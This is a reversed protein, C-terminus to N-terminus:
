AGTPPQDDLIAAFADVPVPGRNGSTDTAVASIKLQSGPAGNVQFDMAFPATRDAFAFTDNIFFDVVSVDTTSVTAAAHGVTGQILSGTGSIVLSTVAPPTRDTTHFGFNLGSAQRHDTLDTAAQVAVTYSADEVLPLNPTFVIVTNSFLYDTRGAVAGQPGSLTIPAGTFKSPDIIENFKVRVVTDVSVGTATLTPTTELISPPTVDVTTFAAIYDATMARGARDKVGSVRLTYRTQDTLQSGPLLRFRVETDDTLTDILGAVLGAPGLLTVSTANVSGANLSESFRVHIETTRSVNVDGNAPTSEVVAPPAEDLTVDGLALPGTLVVAGSKRAIGGGVPDQLFLSYSGAGIAEYSFQGDAGTEAFLHGGNLTLDAVVGGAPNGNALLVRGTMTVAPALIVELGSKTTGPILVDGISGQQGNLSSAVVTFTQAPVNSFRFKGLADTSQQCAGSCGSGPQGYLRVSANAAPLLTNNQREYVTGEIVSLGLLTATVDAIDNEFLLSGGATGVSPNGTVQASARVTFRGLPIDGVSFRGDAGGLAARCGDSACVEVQANPAPAGGPLVVTGTVTGAVRRVVNVVVPVDVLQGGRTVQGNVSGQGVIGRKYAQLLFNGVPAGPFSFSGDVGTQAIQPPLGRGSFTSEYLQVTWGKLPTLAGAEVVTGRISGLAELTLSLSTPQTGGLVVVSATGRGATVPDFGEATISGVPILPVEYHGQADTVAYALPGSNNSLIVEANPVPVLLTTSDERLVQGTVSGTADFLFVDVTVHGGDVVVRGSKRGAFGNQDMATVVFQGESLADGGGFVITGDPAAVGQRHDKPYDLGQLEITAGGVPTIGNSRIVRVTVNARGLLRIPADVEDGARVSGKIEAIKGNGTSNDVATITFPGANVLPFSYTGDAANTVAFAEQIGQPISTCESDGTQADEHCFVVVANSKFKLTVQRGTVPTFGDPELVTGTIRSTPQLRLDITVTQGPGPMVGEAAVPEPSFQGAARVTFPGTFVQDKFEYEGNTINNDVVKFNQVYEFKVGVKGGAVVLRDGSISVKAALPTDGSCPPSNCNEARLVRGKVTGFSGRFTIDAVLVQREYRIAIPFVNGDKLDSRFASIRYTAIGLKDIRYFGQANTTAEGKICISPQLFEDYCDQFVWVKIGPQAVGDHDRVVGAVSGVPDLVITANVSEGNQVIDVQTEGQSQLTNSVAVLRTRGVPIDTLTFSGDAAANVLSGGGGIVADPVPQHSADLVVGHVIGFGGGLLITVNETENEALTVRVNGEQLTVQDFTNVRIEGAPLDPLEFLGQDNSNAVALACESPESTGGPPPPCPVGVQSRTKYYAIVPIGAVATAGDARVVRGTVTAKKIPATTAADLLVLDREVTAGAFPINESVFISAPRATNVAEILLNGVPVGAFSYRGDAGTTSGYQSQDTLSTARLVTGALPTRGDEALTRGTVSGRGLFVVNVNLRQSNRALGFRITRLDDRESDLAVLKINMGPARLVYDFQYRGDADTTQEAIGVLEGSDGCNFEYFMRVTSFANPTGDAQLVQGYVLGADTGVVTEIPLTQTPITNGNLDQAGDVTLTRPEFPGIPSRLAVYVIRGGPQLAVGVARNNEPKFTTIEGPPAKDQVSQPTVEESFLVAIVRGAPYQRQPDLPCGVMDVNAVQRVGLISPAPDNVLGFTATETTGGTPERRLAYLSDPATGGNTLAVGSALSLGTLSAFRLTNDTGPLVVSLNYTALPSSGERPTLVLTYTDPTPVSIVLLRAMLQDGSNFDLVDGFPIDKVVKMGDVTGLRHGSGDVLSANFALPGNNGTILVSVHPTKSTMQEALSRHFATAGALVGPTLIKAVASALQDGRVSKRRVLDFGKVDRQLLALLGTTDNQPVKKALQSYETGLFDFLLSAAARAMPEGFSVRLGAEATQVGRDIVVQKSFRSLDKPLAAPPATAVAWARAMLDVAAQRLEADLFSAETPLVFSDPSLPVGLEGVASKLVFRGQVSDESDLTAATVKGTRLSILKFTVTKSDGPDIADINKVADDDLTAGSINGPFLNVSVFNALSESTNTVTIDLTYPERANVVEPHTFTLTFTPNRVLVAGAARGRIPVPGIPLGNLTGLLEMEVVHLGERRGEVLYEANGTQGPGLTTIDDGTGLNGDPGPQTVPAVRPFEGNARKAMALPDDLSGVVNDKGPPLVISAMLNSVVLNSGTPAVNAVMLMVSFYQNLFGIDGPIVIVGPIPPVYFDQSATSQDLTLSFGVVSLNPIRAQIQLTDPILTKLSQLQPADITKLDVASPNVDQLGPITPLLVPFSINIAAGSDIAFAATFNYAQFNSKDYVIGKERIEDATLARTTVTTVLLKEIVDIKAVEPSGYLLVQGGSMLRINELTHLGPVTLTPINFPSNPQAVLEIPTPFSPGRLTARVEADPAFAPTDPPLTPTQLFTSVITAFDKPVTQQAPEVKLGIGYLLIEERGLLREQASVSPAALALAGILTVVLARLRLRM